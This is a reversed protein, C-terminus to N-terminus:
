LIAWRAMLPGDLATALYNSSEAGHGGYVVVALLAAAALGTILWPKASFGLVEWLSMERRAAIQAVRAMIRAELGLPACAQDEKGFWGGMLADLKAVNKDNDMM